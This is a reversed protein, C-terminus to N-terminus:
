FISLHTHSIFLDLFMLLLIIKFTNKYFSIHASYHPLLLMFCTISLHNLVNLQECRWYQQRCVWQAFVFLFYVCIVKRFYEHVRVEKLTQTWTDMSFSQCCSACITYCLMIYVCFCQCVCLCICLCMLILLLPNADLWFSGDKFAM